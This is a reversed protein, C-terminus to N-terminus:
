EAFNLTFNSFTVVTGSPIRGGSVGGGADYQTILRLGIGLVNEYTNSGWPVSTKLTGDENFAALYQDRTLTLTADGNAVTYDLYATQTYTNAAGDNFWLAMRNYNTEFQLIDYGEASMTFSISDAGKTVFANYLYDDNFFLAFNNGGMTLTVKDGNDSNITAKEIYTTDFVNHVTVGQFNALYAATKVTGGYVYRFCIQNGYSAYKANAKSDEFQERSLRVTLKYFGTAGDVTVATADAGAAIQRSTYTNDQIQLIALSGAPNGAWDAIIDFQFHTVKEDAFVKELYAGDVYFYTTSSSAAYNSVKLASTKEAAGDVSISAFEMNNQTSGSGFYGVPHLAGNDFAGGAAYDSVIAGVNDFYVESIGGAYRLRCYLDVNATLRNFLARTVVATTKYYDGAKEQTYTLNAYLNNNGQADATTRSAFARIFAPNGVTYIDFTIAVADPYATFYDKMVSYSLAPYVDAQGTFGSNGLAKGGNFDVVSLEALSTGPTNSSGFFTVFEAPAAESFTIAMNEATVEFTAKTSGVSATVNATGNAVATVKGDKDVTAVNENSSKWTVAYGDDSLTATLQVPTSLQNFTASTQDLAISDVAGEVFADLKADVMGAALVHSATKAISTTAANSTHVVEGDIAVYSTATVETVYDSAPIELLVANWGSGDARWKTAPVKLNYEQAEGEVSSTFSLVTYHEAGETDKLVDPCNVKFRLGTPNGVTGDGLRVAAETIKFDTGWDTEAQATVSAGAIGASLAAAFALSAVLTFKKKM